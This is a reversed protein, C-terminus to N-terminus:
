ALPTPKAPMRCGQHCDLPTSHGPCSPMAAITSVLFFHAAPQQPEDAPSDREMRGCSSGSRAATHLNLLLPPHQAPTVILAVEHEVRQTRQKSCLCPDHLPRPQHSPTSTPGQHPLTELTLMKEMMGM